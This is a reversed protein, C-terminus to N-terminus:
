LIVLVGVFGHEEAFAAIVFDTHPVPLFRLKTQDGKTVGKGWLGGSGVAIKSQIVQYGSGRPDREPDMFSTLRAKQYDKLYVFWIGPVLVACLGLIAAWYQWRLGVLYIGVVLIPVYTLATTLDPQKMVLAMPLLVLASLKLLDKLEL